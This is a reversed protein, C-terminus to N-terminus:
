EGEEPSDEEDAALSCPDSSGEGDLLRPQEEPVVDYPWYLGVYCAALAVHEADEGCIRVANCDDDNEDIECKRLQERTQQLCEKAEDKDYSTCADAFEGASCQDTHEDKCDALDDYADNFAAKACKKGFRCSLRV